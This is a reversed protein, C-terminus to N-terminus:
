SGRHELLGEWAAGAVGRIEPWASLADAFGRAAGCLQGYIGERDLDSRPAIARL